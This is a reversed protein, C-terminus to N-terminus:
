LRRALSRQLDTNPNCAVQKHAVRWVLSNLQTVDIPTLHVDAHHETLLAVALHPSIPMYLLTAASVSLGSTSGVRLGHQDAHVVPMDGFIFDIDPSIPTFAQVHLPMFRELSDNFIKAMQRIRFVGRDGFHTEFRGEVYRRAEASDPASGTWSRAFEPSRIADETFSAHVELRAREYVSEFMLSRALHLSCLLKVMERSEPWEDGRAWAQVAPLAVNERKQWIDELVDVHEGESVFSSFHKRVFADATGAPRIRRGTSPPVKDCLLIREGDAFLRQYGRSVIHHRKRAGM